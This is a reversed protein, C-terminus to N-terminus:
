PRQEGNVGQEGPDKIEEDGAESEKTEEKGVDTESDAAPETGAKKAGDGPTSPVSAAPDPEEEPEAEEATPMPDTTKAEEPESEAPEQAPGPKVGAPEEEPEANEAEEPEPLTPVAMRRALAGLFLASGVGIGGVWAGALLAALWVTPGTAGYWGLQGGALYAGVAAGVAAGLGAGAAQVLSPRSRVAQWSALAGTVLLLVPAWSSAEGPILAFLPLPPVPVLHISFLSVSASGIIFEGGLLVAIVAIVANPLYLLSVLGLGLGEQLGFIEFSEAMQVQREWGLVFLGLLLILGVGAMRRFFRGSNVAGDVLETPIRYRRAVARWLRQGVGLAYALLHLLLTRILAEWLPPPSLDFVKAADWLMGWAVLTLLLPVALTCALLVALDVVSVKTRVARRVRYSILALLGLAPLLPMFSVTVDALVVPALNLVMWLTAITAPLAGMTGDSFMIGALSLAVLGLVVLVHPLAIAPLFRRLRGLLTTPRSRAQRRATSEAAGRAAATAQAAARAKSPGGSRPRRAPRFQPSTNKSMAKM